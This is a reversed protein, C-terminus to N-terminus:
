IRCIRGGAGAQLMEIVAARAALSHVLLVVVDGARAWDLACRAAEVETSRM